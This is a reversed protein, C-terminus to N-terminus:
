LYALSSMIGIGACSKHSQSKCSFSNTKIPTVWEINEKRVQGHSFSITSKEKRLLQIGLIDVQPSFFEYEAWIHQYMQPFPQLRSMPRAATSSHWYTTSHKLNIPGPLFTTLHWCYEIVLPFIPKAIFMWQIICLFVTRHPLPEQRSRWRGTHRLHLHVGRKPLSLVSAMAEM